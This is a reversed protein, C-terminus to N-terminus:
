AYTLTLHGCRTYDTCLAHHASGIEVLDMVLDLNQMQRPKKRCDLLMCSLNYAM